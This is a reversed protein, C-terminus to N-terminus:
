NSKTTKPILGNIWFILNDEVELRNVENLTEHRAEPYLVFELNKMGNAKYTEILRAPSKGMKGVPDKDGSFVYIPLDVNIKKMSRKTHIKLTFTTVEFYFQLTVRKGCLLDNAYADVEATDRSLWDYPTRNPKFPANYAGDALRYAFSSDYRRGCFFRMVSLLATGFVIFAGEDPGQTGSLICGSLAAEDDNQDNFKEIYGQALFSGWSHGMLFLPLDPHTQRIAKNILRIDQIVLPFGNKDACHGRLGGLAPSNEPKAATLGHGRMDAAWVEIGEENLRAAIRSYRGSHEAMGHVIQMVARPKGGPIFRRLFLDTGDDTKFYSTTMESMGM